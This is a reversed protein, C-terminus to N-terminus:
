GTRRRRPAMSRGILRKRLVLANNYAVGKEDTGTGMIQIAPSAINKETTPGLTDIHLEKRDAGITMAVMKFPRETPKTRAHDPVPFYSSEASSMWEPRIVPLCSTM